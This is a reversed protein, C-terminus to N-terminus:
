AGSCSSASRSPTSWNTRNRRTSTSSCICSISPRARSRGTTSRICTACRSPAALIQNLNEVSERCAVESLAIPIHVLHGYPQIEPAHQHALPTARAMIADADFTKM